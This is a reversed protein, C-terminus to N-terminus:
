CVPGHTGPQGTYFHEVEPRGCYTGDSSYRHACKGSADPDFRHHWITPRLNM